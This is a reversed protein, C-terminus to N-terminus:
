PMKIPPPSELDWRGQLSLVFPGALRVADARSREKVLRRFWERQTLALAIGPSNRLNETYFDVMFRATSDDAVPWLTMLLNEAGARLFGRRLGLVGEGAQASGLGTECASLSVLHTGKLDLLSVEGATLFGDENSEPASSLVLGSASMPDNARESQEKEFFGHSAVHLIRPHRLAKFQTESAAEGLYVETTLGASRQLLDAVQECEVRTFPLPPFSPDRSVPDGLLTVQESGEVSSQYLLDRGSAVYLWNLREGLLKKDSDLLTAFSVFNLESDPSVVVTDTGEPLREAVPKWLSTHLASLVSGGSGFESGIGRVFRRYHKIHAEIDSAPGLELWVAERDRALVVAGYRPQYKGGGLGEQYRIYEVLVSGQPLADAAEEPTVQFARRLGKFGQSHRALQAELEEVTSRLESIRLEELQLSDSAAEDRKKLTAALEARASRLEEIRAQQSLDGSQRALALDEMISDLVSGKYRLVATALHHASGLEAFLNYPELQRSYALRQRESAFSYIEESVSLLAEAEKQAHLMAKERDGSQLAVEGLRYLARATYRHHPGLEKEFVELSATLLEQAKELDGANLHLSGLSFLTLATIPSDSGHRKRRIELARNMLESATAFDAAVSPVGALLDLTYAVEPHDPGLNQEGLSLAQRYHEIAADDRGTRRHVSALNILVPIVQPHSAGLSRRRIALVQELLKRARELDSMELLLVGFNHAVAAYELSEPGHATLTLREAESYLQEAQDYQGLKSHLLALNVRSTVTRSHENGYLKKSLNLSEQLLEMAQRLEGSAEKLLGLSTLARDYNAPAIDQHSRQIELARTLVAEAERYRGTLRYIDGLSTLTIVISSSNEPLLREKLKLTERYADLSRELLGQDRYLGALNQLLVAKAAQGTESPDTALALAESYMKEARSYRKLSRQLDAGEVLVNQLSRYNPTDLSKLLTISQEFFEEAQETRGSSVFLRAKLQYLGAAIDVAKPGIKRSM